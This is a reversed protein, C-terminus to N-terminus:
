FSIGSSDDPANGTHLTQPDLRDIVWKAYENPDSPPTPDRDHFDNRVPPEVGEQDMNAPSDAM